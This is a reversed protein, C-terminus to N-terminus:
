RSLFDGIVRYAEAPKEEHVCHGGPLSQVRAGHLRRAARETNAILRDATGLIVLAPVALKEAAEDSVPRWDFESLAARAAAVFGPLQTPSWYEDVDEKTVAAPNGYAIRRLIFGVVPRPVLRKGLATVVFRPMARLLPVFHLPVLASPNILVLRSMRKPYRLAFHLALGGGMSQGVIAPEDLGLLDLLSVLDELYGSLSYAGRHSPRSSLGFGRLDVATARMGARPLADLGHRYMYSSAGWGHLLVVPKGTAPGAEVIRLRIGSPLDVFRQTIDTRHAPFLHAPDLPRRM